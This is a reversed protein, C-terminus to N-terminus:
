GNKVTGSHLKHKRNLWPSNNILDLVYYINNLKYSTIESQELFDAMKSYNKNTEHNLAKTNQKEYVSEYKQALNNLLLITDTLILRIEGHPIEDM